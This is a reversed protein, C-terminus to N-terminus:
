SKTIRRNIARLLWGPSVQSATLFARAPRGVGRHIGRPVFSRGQKVSALITEAVDEPKLRIGLTESSGADLGDVLATNVWLPWVARVRIGEAKWELDLAETLGRVAFKTASYVAIDAQGYIASASALNIVVSGEGLYQHAAYCGNIVGKVNVDVQLNQGDLSIEAFKGSRLIGANNILVDLRGGTQSTFEALRDAWADADRVDLTGIVIADSEDSLTKLGVEDVDYAGVVYGERAFRLATARGIGAAAGTIFVSPKTEDASTVEAPYTGRRWLGADPEPLQSWFRSRRRARM